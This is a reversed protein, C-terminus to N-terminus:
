QNKNTQTQSTAKAYWLEYLPWLVVQLVWSELDVMSIGFTLGLHDPMITFAKVQQAM